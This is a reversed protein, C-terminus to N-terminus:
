SYHSFSTVCSKCSYWTNIHGTMSAVLLRDTPSPIFHLRCVHPLGHQSRQLLQLDSRRAQPTPSCYPQRSSTRSRTSSQCPRLYSYSPYRILVENKPVYLSLPSPFPSVFLSLTARGPPRFPLTSHGSLRRKIPLLVYCALMPASENCEPQSRGSPIQM